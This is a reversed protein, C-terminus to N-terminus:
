WGEASLEALAELEELREDASSRRAAATRPLPLPEPPEPLPEARAELTVGGLQRLLTTQGEIKRLQLVANSGSQKLSRVASLTESLERSKDGLQQRLAEDDGYDARGRHGMWGQYRGLEDFVWAGLHPRDLDCALLVEQGDTLSHGAGRFELTVQRGVHPRFKATLQNPRDHKAKAHDAVFFAMASQALKTVKRPDHLRQWREAPTEMRTLSREPHALFKSNFGEVGIMEMLGAADPHQTTKWEADQPGYRWLNVPEFGVLEHKERQDLNHLARLLVAAFTEPTHYESLEQMQEPTALEGVAAMLRKAHLQKGDADGPRKSYDAGIYGPQNGLELHLSHFFSEIWAKDRPQGGRETYGGLTMVGSWTGTREVTVAGGSVIRMAEQLPPLIAASANEVLWEQGSTLWGHTSLVSAALHQMDRRTIGRATGDGRSTKPTLQVGVVRRTALDMAVLAWAEALQPKGDV